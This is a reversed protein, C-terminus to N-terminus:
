KNGRVSKYMFRSSLDIYGLGKTSSDFISYIVGNTAINPSDSSPFVDNNISNLLIEELPNKTTKSQSLKIRVINKQINDLYDQECEDTNKISKLGQRTQSTHGKATAISTKLLKTVRKESLGPCM